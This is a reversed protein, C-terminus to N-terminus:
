CSGTKAQATGTLLGARILASRVPRGILIALVMKVADLGIFPFVGAAVAASLPMNAQYKLWLTGFAYCVALGIAMGIVQMYIKGSFRDIFVGSILAMLIFGIIYGGTPGFAKAVGGQYGSFVPLGAIGLLVYIAVAATGKKMGLIYAALFVAFPTLSIPVLGTPISIPGLVCMVATMVAIETIVHVNSKM